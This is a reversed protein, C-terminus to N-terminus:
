PGDKGMYGQLVGGGYEGNLTSGGGYKLTSYTIAQPPSKESTTGSHSM